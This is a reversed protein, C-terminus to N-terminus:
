IDSLERNVSIVDKKRFTVDMVQYFFIQKM